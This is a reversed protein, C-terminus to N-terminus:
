LSFVHCICAQDLLIEATQFIMGIDFLFSDAELMEMVRSVRIVTDPSIHQIFPDEMEKAAANQQGYLHFHDAKDMHIGAPCESEVTGQEEGTCAVYPFEDASGNGGRGRFGTEEYGSAGQAAPFAGESREKRCLVM